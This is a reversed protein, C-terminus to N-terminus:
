VSMWKLSCIAIFKFRGMIRLDLDGYWMYGKGLQLTWQELDTRLPGQCAM